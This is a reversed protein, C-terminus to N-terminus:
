FTDGEAHLSEFLERNQHTVGALIESRSMSFLKASEVLLQALTEPLLRVHALAAMDVM